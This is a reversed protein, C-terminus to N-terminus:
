APRLNGIGAEVAINRRAAASSTVVARRWQLGAVAPMAGSAADQRGPVAWPWATSPFMASREAMGSGERIGRTADRAADRIRELDRPDPRGARCAWATGCRPM